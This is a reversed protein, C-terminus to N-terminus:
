CVMNFNMVHFVSRDCPEWHPLTATHLFYCFEAFLFDPSYLHINMMEM